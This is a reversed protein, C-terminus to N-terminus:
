SFLISNTVLGPPIMKIGKFKNGVNWSNMDIGVETGVPVDLLVVAAGVEFLRQAVERDVEVKGGPDGGDNSTTTAVEDDLDFHVRSKKGGSGGSSAM